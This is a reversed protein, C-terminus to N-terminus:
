IKGIREIKLVGKTRRRGSVIKTIAESQVELRRAVSERGTFDEIDGDKFFVRYQVKSSNAFETRKYVYAKEVREIKIGDTGLSRSKIRRTMSVPHIGLEKAAAYYGSVVKVSGDPYTLQYDKRRGREKRPIAPKSGKITRCEVPIGRGLTTKPTNWCIRIHKPIDESM